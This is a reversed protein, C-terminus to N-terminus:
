VSASQIPVEDRGGLQVGSTAVGSKAAIRVEPEALVAISPGHNGLRVIASSENSPAGPVRDEAIPPAWPLAVLIRNARDALDYRYRLLPRPCREPRCM